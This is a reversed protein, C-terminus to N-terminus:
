IGHPYKTLMEQLTRGETLQFHPFEPFSKWNGAWELGLGTGITATRQWLELDDSGDDLPNDDIGNGGTGWVPKGHRFVLIDFARGWNHWSMGAPANTVKLGQPHKKCTGLKNSKGGCRCCAGPKTRGIAYLAAQELFTRKTCIVSMEYGKTKASGLFQSALASVSPLLLKLDAPM